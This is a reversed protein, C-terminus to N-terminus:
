NKWIELYKLVEDLMKIQKEINEVKIRLNLLSHTISSYLIKKDVEDSAKKQYTRLFGRYWERLSEYKEKQKILINHMNLLIKTNEVLKEVELPSTKGELYKNLLSLTESCLKSLDSTDIVKEEEM